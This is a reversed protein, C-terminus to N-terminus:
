NIVKTPAIKRNQYCQELTPRDALVIHLIAIVIGAFMKLNTAILVVFFDAIARLILFIKRM